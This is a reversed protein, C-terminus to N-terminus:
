PICLVQGAYITYNADLSNAQQLAALTAGNNRAVSFATDGERVVYALRSNQCYAPNARPVKLVAGPIVDASDIGYQAMLSVTTANVRAISYLTDIAQVTYDVTIIAQASPVVAATPQTQPQVLTPVPTPITLTGELQQGSSESSGAGGLPQSETPLPGPTVAEVPPPVVLMSGESPLYAAQQPDIELSIVFGDAVVQRSIRGTDVSGAATPAAAPEGSQDAVSGANQRPLIFVFYVAVAMVLAVGAM